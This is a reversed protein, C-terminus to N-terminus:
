YRCTTGSNIKHLKQFLSNWDTIRTKSAYYHIRIKHGVLRYFAVSPNGLDTLFKM